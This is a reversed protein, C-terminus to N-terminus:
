PPCLKHAYALLFFQPKGGKAVNQGGGKFVGKKTFINIGKKIKKACGGGVQVKNLM